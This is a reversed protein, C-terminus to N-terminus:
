VARAPAFMGSYGDAKKTLESCLVTVVGLAEREGADLRELHPYGVLSRVAHLGAPREWLPWVFVGSKRRGACATTELKAGVGTVPFSALGRFALWEAVPLFGRAFGTYIAGPMDAAPDWDLSRPAALDPGGTTLGAAISERTLYSRIEEVQELFQANRSTFDFYTPLMLRNLPADVDFPVGHQRLLEEGPTEDAPENATECVLAAMQALARDDHRARHDLLWRRLVAAPARLGGVRKPGGKELKLYRFSLLPSFEWDRADSHVADVVADVSEVGALVPRWADLLTWALRPVLSSRDPARREALVRQTGLAALFGLPTAGDLGELVV